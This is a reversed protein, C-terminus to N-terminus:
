LRTGLILAIKGVLTALPDLSVVMVTVPVPNLWSLVTINFPFESGVVYALAVCSDAVTGAADMAENPQAAMETELGAGPPPVDDM